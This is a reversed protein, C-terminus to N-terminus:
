RLKTYTSIVEWFTLSFISVFPENEYELIETNETFGFENQLISIIDSNRLNKIALHIYFIYFIAPRLFDITTRSYGRYNYM